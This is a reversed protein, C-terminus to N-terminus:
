RVWEAYGQGIGTVSYVLLYKDVPVVGAYYAIVSVNQMDGTGGTFAYGQEVTTATMSNLPLGPFTVALLNRADTESSVGGTHYIGYVGMSGETITLQLGEMTINCQAGTCDGAYVIGMGVTNLGVYAVSSANALMAQVEPPFQAAYAELEPNAQAQQLIPRSGATTTDFEAAYMPTFNTGLYQTAFGTVAAYAVESSPPLPVDVPLPYILDMTALRAQLEDMNQPMEPPPTIEAWAFTGQPVALTTQLAPLTIQPQTNQPQNSLPALTPQANPVAITPRADPRNGGPRQAVAVEAYLVSVLLVMVGALYSRKMADEEILISERYWFDASYVTFDTDFTPLAYLLILLV